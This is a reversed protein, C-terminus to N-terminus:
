KGYKIRELKGALECSKDQCKWCMIPYRPCLVPSMATPYTHVYDKLPILQMIFVFAFLLIEVILWPTNSEVAVFRGTLLVRLLIYLVFGTSFVGVCYRFLKVWRKILLWYKTM